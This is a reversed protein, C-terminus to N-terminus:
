LHIIEVESKGSELELIAITGPGRKYHLLTPSGPNIHLIGNCREVITRHEHGSVIIDPKGNNNEDASTRNQWWWTLREETMPVHPGEHLLWLTHGELQLVHKESIRIDPSEYDDDGLAALVPAIKELEDLVDHRYIDGGHLILDVGQFLELVKPPIEKQEWAIHTDSLLGIRM